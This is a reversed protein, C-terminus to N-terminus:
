IVAWLPRHPKGDTAEWFGESLVKHAGNIIQRLPRRWSFKVERILSLQTSVTM